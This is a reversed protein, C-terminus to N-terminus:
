TLLEAKAIGCKEHFLRRIMMKTENNTKTAEEETLRKYANTYLHEDYVQEKFKVRNSTTPGLNKDSDCIHINNRTHLQKLTQQHYYTLNSQRNPKRNTLQTEIENEFALLGKEIM